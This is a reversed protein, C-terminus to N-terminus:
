TWLRPNSLGTKAHVKKPVNHLLLIDRDPGNPKELGLAAGFRYTVPDFFM